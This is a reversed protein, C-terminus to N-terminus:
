LPMVPCSGAARRTATPLKILRATPTAIARDTSGSMPRSITDISGALARATASKWVAKLRIVASSRRQWQKPWICGWSRRQNGPHFLDHGIWGLGYTVQIGTARSVGTTAGKPPAALSARHSQSVNESRHEGPQARRLRYPHDGVSRLSVLCKSSTRSLSLVAIFAYMVDMSGSHEWTRRIM